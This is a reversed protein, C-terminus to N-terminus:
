LALTLLSLLYNTLQSYESMNRTDEESIVVNKLHDTAHLNLM